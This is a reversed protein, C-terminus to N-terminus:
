GLKAHLAFGAKVLSVGPKWVKSVLNITTPKITVFWTSAFIVSEERASPQSCWYNTMSRAPNGSLRIGETSVLAASLPTMLRVLCSAVDAVVILVFGFMCKGASSHLSAHLPPCVSLFIKECPSVSHEYLSSILMWLHFLHEFVLQLLHLGSTM